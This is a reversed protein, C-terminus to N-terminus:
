KKNIFFKVTVFRFTLTLKYFYFCIYLLYVYFSNVFVYETKKRIAKLLYILKKLLFYSEGKIKFLYM